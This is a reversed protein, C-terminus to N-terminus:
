TDCGPLLTNGIQMAKEHASLSADAYSSSAITIAASCRDLARPEFRDAFMGTEDLGSSLWGWGMGGEKGSCM